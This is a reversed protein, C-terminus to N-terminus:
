QTEGDVIQMVLFAGAAFIGGMLAGVTWCTWPGYDRITAEAMAHAFAITVLVSLALGAVGVGCQRRTPRGARSVTVGV